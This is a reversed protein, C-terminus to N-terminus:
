IKKGSLKFKFLCIEVEGKKVHVACGLRTVHKGVTALKRKRREGGEKEGM